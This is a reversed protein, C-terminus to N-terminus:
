FTGVRVYVDTAGEGRHDTWISAVHGPVSDIWQYDGIDTGGEPAGNSTQTTLRVPPAFTSGDDDSERVWSAFSGDSQSELYRM